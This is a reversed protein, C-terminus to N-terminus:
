LGALGPTKKPYNRVSMCLSCVNYMVHMGV